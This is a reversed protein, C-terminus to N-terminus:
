NANLQDLVPQVVAMKEAVWAKWNQELDGDKLILKAYEDALDMTAQSKERSSLTEYDYERPLLTTEDSLQDRLKYFRRVTDQIETSYNPSVLAFDDTLVVSGFYSDKSPYKGAMVSLHEGQISPDLLSVYNGNEDREWDVGEFGMNVLNQGEETACFDLLDMAREFKEDSITPSFIVQGWYNADERYHYKGDEGVLQALHLVEDPDLGQATLGNRIYTILIAHGDELAIGSTGQVYFKQSGEYRTFTYFEPDIVGEKYMQQYTKLSELTREDAPAWQFTGTEDQYYGDGINCAQSFDTTPWLKALDYTRISLGVLSDGVNGPDKELFTRAIEALESPSYTDKIELGCAELWDKRMYLLAHYSLRESPRNTSFVPRWLCYTGGLKEEAIAAIPVDDQTKALNPWREKWDDPFRYIADQSAYTEIEGYPYEAHAVDPMDGSNIWVRLREDWDSVDITTAIIDFDINYTDLWYRGWDDGGYDGGSKIGAMLWTLTLHEDYTKKDAPPNTAGPAASAPAPTASADAPGEQAPSCAALGLMLLLLVSLLACLTRKSKKM